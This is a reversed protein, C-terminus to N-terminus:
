FRLVFILPVNIFLTAVLFAVYKEQRSLSELVLFLPRTAVYCVPDSCLCSCFVFLRTAVYFSLRSM